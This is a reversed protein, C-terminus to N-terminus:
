IGFLNQGEDLKQCHPSIFLTERHRNINFSSKGINSYGGGASWQYVSWGLRELEEHEERYGALVIRYDKNTGRDICWQRVDHAVSGSDVSYIKMDRGTESSYPPDFFIGVPRGPATQWNGGCVRSWDGCVVRVYRLRKSLDRFWHFINTNYRDRVDAGADSLHPRQGKAHVGNGADALHPIQNPRILGDGIWCSSAWIYYGALRPDCFNEDACLKELLSESELNLKKKRAILDCNHVLVRHAFYTGIETQINYVECCGYNTRNDKGHKRNSRKQRIAVGDMRQKEFLYRTAYGKRERKQTSEWRSRYRNKSNNRSYRSHIQLTKNCSGESVAIKRELFENKRCNGNALEITGCTITPGITSDCAQNRKELWIRTRSAINRKETTNESRLDSKKSQTAMSQTKEENRSQEKNNRKNQSICLKPFLVDKTQSYGCLFSRLKFMEKKRKKTREYRSIICGIHNNDLAKKAFEFKNEAWIPHNKTVKMSGCKIIEKSNVFRRNTQLITTLHLELNEDCSWVVDGKKLTEIPVSGNPTEIPTGKAFCHNVPWDCWKAVENPDSQLSRWVNCIHGDKDVVTETHSQPKYDPRALLVACSGCFPEIYHGIDASVLARWVVSAM